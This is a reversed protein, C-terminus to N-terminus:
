KQDLCNRVTQALAKPQWPKHIMNMGEVLQPPKNVVDSGYGSTFIVKLQPKEAQLRKALESGLIGGPMM